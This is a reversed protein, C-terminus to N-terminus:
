PYFKIKGFTQENKLKSQRDYKKENLLSSLMVRRNRIEMKM